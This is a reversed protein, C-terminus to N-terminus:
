DSLPTHGFAPMSEIGFVVARRAPYFAAILGAHAM